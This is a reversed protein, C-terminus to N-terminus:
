PLLQLQANLLTKQKSCALMTSVFILKLRFILKFCIKRQHHGAPAQNPQSASQRCYFKGREVLKKKLSTM